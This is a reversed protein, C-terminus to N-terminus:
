NISPLKKVGARASHPGLHAYIMTTNINDHGLIKQLDELRGGAQIYHAGFTHRLKYLYSRIGPLKLGRRALTLYSEYSPREGTKPHAVIHQGPITPLTKKLYAVLDPEMPVERAEYDKPTWHPKPGIKIVEAKFDIDTKELHYAEAPRLGARAGLYVATLWIGRLKKVMVRLEEIPHYDVRGRPLKKAKVSKWDQRGTMNWAEARRMVAKITKVDKAIIYKGRGQQSWEAQMTDLHSPTFEEVRKIYPVVGEIHRIARNYAMRTSKPGHSVLHAVKEKFTKWTKDTPLYHGRKTAAKEKILDGLKEQALLKDTELAKRVRRYEQRGQENKGKPISIDSYYMGWPAQILGPQIKKFLVKGVKVFEPM